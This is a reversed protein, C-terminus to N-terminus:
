QQQTFSIPINYQVRVPKGGQYGPVWKPSLKMVRIAEADIDSAVSKTVRIDTLSGDKEVVMTLIVKGQINKEHSDAPYHINNALFRYFKREGGPFSPQKEVNLFIATDASIGKITDIKQAKAAFAAIILALIILIPKM